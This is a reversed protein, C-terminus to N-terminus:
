AAHSLAAAYLRFVQYCFGDIFEETKLTAAWKNDTFKITDLEASLEFTGHSYSNRIHQAITGQGNRINGSRFARSFPYISDNQEVNRLGQELVNSRMYVMAVYGRLLIIGTWRIANLQADQVNTNSRLTAISAGSLFNSLGYASFAAHLKNDSICLNYRSLAASLDADSVAKLETLLPNLDYTM